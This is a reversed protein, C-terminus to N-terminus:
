RRWFLYLDVVASAGVLTVAFSTVAIALDLLLGGVFRAVPVVWRSWDWGPVARHRPTPYHLSLDVTAECTSM